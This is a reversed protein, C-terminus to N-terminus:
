RVEESLRLTSLISLCRDETTRDPAACYISMANIFREKPDRDMNTVWRWRIGIVHRGDEGKYAVVFAPIDAISARCRRYGPKSAGRRLLDFSCAGYDYIVDAVGNSWGGSESDFSVRGGCVMPTGPSFRTLTPNREFQQPLRLQFASGGDTKWDSLPGLPDRCPYFGDDIIEIVVDPHVLITDDVTKSPDSDSPSKYAARLIYKGAATLDYGGTVDYDQSVVEGPSLKYPGRVVNCTIPGEYPVRTGPYRYISFEYLVEDDQRRVTRPDRAPDSPTFPVARDSVNEWKFHVVVPEGLVFETKDVSVVFRLGDKEVGVEGSANFPALVFLAVVVALVRTTMQTKPDCM